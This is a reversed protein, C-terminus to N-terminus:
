YFSITWITEKSTLHYVLSYQWSQNIAPEEGPKLNSGTIWEQCLLYILYLLAKM